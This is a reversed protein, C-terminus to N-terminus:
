IRFVQNLIYRPPSAFQADTPAGLALASGSVPLAAQLLHFLAPAAPKLKGSAALPIVAPPLAHACCNQPCDAATMQSTAPGNMPCDPAMGSMVMPCGPVCAVPAGLVCPVGAHAPQVALLAIVSVSVFQILQKMRQM